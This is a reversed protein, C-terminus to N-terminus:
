KTIAKAITGANEIGVKKRSLLLVNALNNTFTKVDRTSNLYFRQNNICAICRQNNVLYHKYKEIIQSVTKKWKLNIHVIDPVQLVTKQSLNAPKHGVRHKLTKSKAGNKPLIHQHMDNQHNVEGKNVFNTTKVWHLTLEM